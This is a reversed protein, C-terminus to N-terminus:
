RQDEQSENPLVNVEQPPFGCNGGKCTYLLIQVHLTVLRGMGEVYTPCTQTKTSSPTTTLKTTSFFFFVPTDRRMKILSQTRMKIKIPTITVKTKSLQCIGGCEVLMGRYWLADRSAEKPREFKACRACVYRCVLYM